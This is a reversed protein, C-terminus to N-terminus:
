TSKKTLPETLALEATGGVQENGAQLLQAHEQELNLLRRRVLEDGSDSSTDMMFMQWHPRKICHVCTLQRSSM